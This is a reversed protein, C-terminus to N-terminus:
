INERSLFPMRGSFVPHQNTPPSLKVPAKYTKYSWNDGGGGDDKAGIFDMISINQCRSVWTWMSFHSNFCLCLYERQVTLIPFASKHENHNNVM